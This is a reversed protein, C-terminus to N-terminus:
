SASTWREFAAAASATDEIALGTSDFITVEADTTRGPKRAAVLDALEAYVSERTTRGAAIAHHLDGMAAAQELSDAVVKAGVFLEPHLESKHPNDAGVAAIFTGPRICDPMLFPAQSSTATVVIDAPLTADRLGEVPVVEIDFAGAMERAFRRAKEADIDWAFAREIGRVAAFAPLQSRAQEGCGCIAIVSAEARALYRAALASAAATRKATIEASDLIALLAGDEADYLLVAGQITPLGKAPNGPFNSNVKVTVYGRGIAAFAGKAHLGGGDVEIHLPMPQSTRGEAHARFSAEIAALYDEPRMLRELARRDIFPPQPTIRAATTTEM